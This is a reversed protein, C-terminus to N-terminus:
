IKLQMKQMKQHFFSARKIALQHSDATEDDVLHALHARRCQFFIENLSKDSIGEIWGLDIGLKILSLANLAEKTQLQYSHILLGYARSVLDKVEANNGEKLHTRLTKESVILKTATNNLSHLITEESVGITFRNTLIVLDGIFENSVGEMGIAAVEEDKQKLFAEKIQNLHILAPLHLFLRVQLATGCLSSDPTLFGFKTSFAYDLKESLTSDMKSLRNWSNEWEQKCDVLHIQIHDQINLLALFRGTQDLIFAQRRSTNQFGELCLFHEFLFEKHLASLESAEFSTPHDLDGLTELAEKLIKLCSESQRENMKNPFPYSALNRHLIFISAPWISHIDSEWPTHELITSPLKAKQTM